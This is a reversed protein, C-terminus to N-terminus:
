STRALPDTHTTNTMSPVEIPNLSTVSLRFPMRDAALLPKMGQVSLIAGSQIPHLFDLGLRGVHLPFVVRDGAHGPM